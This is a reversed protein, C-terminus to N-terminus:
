AQSIRSTLRQVMSARYVPEFQILTRANAGENGFIDTFHVWQVQESSQISLPPLQGDEIIIVFVEILECNTGDRSICSLWADQCRPERDIGLQERLARSGAAPCTESAPPGGSPAAGSARDYCRVETHCSPGWRGGNKTSGDRSYKRLLLGGTRLDCLWVHVARHLLGLELCTSVPRAGYPRAGEADFVEVLEQQPECGRQPEHKRLGRPNSMVAGEFGRDGTAHESLSWMEEPRPAIGELAREAEAEEDAEMMSHVLALFARRVGEDTRASSVMAHALFGGSGGLDRLAEDTAVAGPSSGDSKTGCLVGVLRPEISPRAVVASRDCALHREMRYHMVQHQAGHYSSRDSLSYCFMIGDPQRGRPLQRCRERGGLEWIELELGAAPLVRATEPPIDARNRVPDLLVKEAYKELGVTPSVNESFVDGIFRRILSTKGVGTNGVVLVVKSVVM